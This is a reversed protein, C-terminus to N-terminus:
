AVSSMLISILRCIHFPVTNSHNVSQPRAVWGHSGELLHGLTWYSNLRHIQHRLEDTTNVPVRLLYDRVGTFSRRAATSYLFTGGLSLALPCFALKRREHGKMQVAM